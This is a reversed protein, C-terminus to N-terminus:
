RSSRMRTSRATPRKMNKTEGSSRSTQSWQAAPCRHEYVHAEYEARFYRLTSLFPNPASKGLACLSADIACESLEEILELDGEQGEGRTIRDTIQVTHAEIDFVAEVQHALWPSEEASAGAAVMFVILCLIARTM